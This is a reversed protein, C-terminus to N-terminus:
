SGAWCVTMYGGLSLTQLSNLTYHLVTSEQFYNCVEIQAAPSSAWEIFAMWMWFVQENEDPNVIRVQKWIMQVTKKLITSSHQRLLNPWKQSTTKQPLYVTHKQHLKSAMCVLATFTHELVATLWPSFLLQGWLLAWEKVRECHTGKLFGACKLFVTRFRIIVSFVGCFDWWCLKAFSYFFFHHITVRSISLHFLIVLRFFLFPFFFKQGQKPKKQCAPLNKAINALHIVLVLYKPQMSLFWFVKRQKVFEVVQWKSLNETFLRFNIQLPFLSKFNDSYFFNDCQQRWNKLVIMKSTM